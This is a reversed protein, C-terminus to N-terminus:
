RVVDIGAHTGDFEVAPGLWRCVVRAPLRAVAAGARVARAAGVVVEPQAHVLQAAYRRPREHLRRAVAHADPGVGVGSEDGRAARGADEALPLAVEEGEGGGAVAWGAAVHVV